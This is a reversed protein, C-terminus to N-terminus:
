LLCQSYLSKRSGSLFLVCYCASGGDVEFLTVLRINIILLPRKPKIVTADDRTLKGWIVKSQGEKQQNESDSGFIYQRIM